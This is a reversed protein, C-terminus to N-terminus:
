PLGNLKQEVKKAKEEEQAKRFAEAAKRWWQKAKELQGDARCADGLHDLVVPDPEAAAAKELEPLAERLKGQRFLVWGLSDRYAANDPEQDVARRIMRHARHLHKGQDAWLYGLDNLASPDDPFEDLVQELWEEATAWDNRLVALNSLILRAERVVRRIESSGYDEAYKQVLDRYARTAEDYRKAHYLIWAVRSLCRPLEEAPQPKNPDAPATKRRAALEATKRAAALAAETQDALELAGALYFWFTPDDDPLAKQDIGRQFVKTARQPEGKLLLDLGWTLLIRAAQDARAQIALDYFQGAIDFQNAESALIAVALRHEYALRQPDAALRKRAAEVVGAVWEAGKGLALAQDGAPDFNGLKGIAEGLTDLLADYQKQNRYIAVLHRYCTASPKKSALHRFLKEAQDFRQSDFYKEALFQALWPNEPDATRLKELREILENEKHLAKLIDALLRYPGTQEIALREDFYAQLRKLAEEPKGTKLDVKALQYGLLGQSPQAQHSRQFVATAKDPQNAQLFSEGMMAFALRPEALLVKKVADDLGYQDPRDLAELVRSFRAAAKAHQETLHYLRGMEMWLVVDQATPKHRSSAAEAKEFLALAKPVDGVEELYVGLRKLLLPDPEELEVLKMAYRLAEAHRGLRSALPIIARVITGSQPDRRFARQYGRLAAAYDGRNECARAVAFLRLAEAHDQEAETPPQAPLFPEPPDELILPPRRSSAPSIGESAKPSTASAAPEGAVVSGIPESWGIRNARTGAWCRAVANAACFMLWAALGVRSAAKPVSELITSM